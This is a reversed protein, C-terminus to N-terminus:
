FSTKNVFFNFDHICVFDCLPNQEQGGGDLGPLLGLGLHGIEFLELTQADPSKASDVFNLVFLGFLNVGDLLYGFLLETLLTHDFLYPILHLDHVLEIMVVDDLHNIMKLIIM